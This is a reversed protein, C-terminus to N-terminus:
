GNSIGVQEQRNGPAQLMTSATFSLFQQQLRTDRRLTQSLSRAPSRQPDYAQQITRSSSPFSYSTFGVTFSAGERVYVPAQATPETISVTSSSDLRHQLEIDFNANSPITINAHAVSMLLLSFVVVVSSILIERRM